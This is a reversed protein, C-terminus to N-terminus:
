WPKGGGRARHLGYVGAIVILHATALGVVTYVATIRTLAALDAWAPNM